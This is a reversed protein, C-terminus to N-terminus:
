IAGPIILFWQFSASENLILLIVIRSKLFWFILELIISRKVLLVYQSPSALALFPKHKASALFTNCNQLFFLSM